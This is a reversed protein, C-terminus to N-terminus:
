TGVMFNALKPITVYRIKRGKSARREVDKRKKASDSEGDVRVAFTFTISEKREILVDLMRSAVSVVSQPDSM